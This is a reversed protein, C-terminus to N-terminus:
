KKWKVEALLCKFCSILKWSRNLEINKLYKVPSKNKQSIEYPLLNFTNWILPLLASRSGLSFYSFPRMKHCKWESIVGEAGQCVETWECWLFLCLLCLCDPPFYSHINHSCTVWKNNGLGRLPPRHMMPSAEGHQGLCWAQDRPESLLCPQRLHTGQRTIAARYSPVGSAVSANPAKESWVRVYRSTKKKKQCLLPCNAKKRDTFPEIIYLFWVCMCRIWISLKLYIDSRLVNLWFSKLPQCWVTVVGM